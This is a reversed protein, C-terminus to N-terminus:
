QEHAQPSPAPQKVIHPTGASEVQMSRFPPPPPPPTPGQTHPRNLGSSSHPSITSRNTLDDRTTPVHLEHSGQFPQPHQNWKCGSPQCRGPMITPAVDRSATHPDSSRDALPSTDGSANHVSAGNVLNAPPERVPIIPGTLEM